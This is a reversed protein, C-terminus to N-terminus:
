QYKNISITHNFLCIGKRIEEAILLANYRLWSACQIDECKIMKCEPLNKLVGHEEFLNKIAAIGASNQLSDSPFWSDAYIHQFAHKGRNNKHRMYVHSLARWINPVITLVYWCTGLGQIRHFEGRCLRISAPMSPACSLPFRLLYMSWRQGIHYCFTASVLTRM